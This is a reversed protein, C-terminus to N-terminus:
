LIIRTNLTVAVADVAHSVVVSDLWLWDFSKTSKETKCLFLYGPINELVKQFKFVFRNILWTIMM